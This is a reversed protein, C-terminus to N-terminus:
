IICLPHVNSATSNIMDMFSFRVIGLTYYDDFGLVPKSFANFCIIFYLIVSLLLLIISIKSENFNLKKDFM